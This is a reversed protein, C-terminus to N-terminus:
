HRGSTSPVTTVLSPPGGMMQAICGLHNNAFRAITAALVTGLHDRVAALEHDKYNRLVTWIQDPVEYLSIPLIESVPMSVNQTTVRCSYCLVAGVGVGRHCLACVGQGRPPVRRYAAMYPDTYHEATATM